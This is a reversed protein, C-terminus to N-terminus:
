DNPHVRGGLPERAGLWAPPIVARPALAAVGGVIALLTDRDADPTELGDLCAWLSAEFDGAHRSACWLAFPVTDDSRVRIGTGLARGAELPSVDALSLARELGARTDGPPTHELVTPLIPLANSAAYAAVAAAVAGARGDPYVHTPLASAEAERVVREVDERFFGGIPASRMAGGNGLSGQGSFVSSAIQRWPVGEHIRTLVHYAVAGYGRQPERAFRDAFAIALADVDISGRLELERVIVEAMATDDTWHWPAAPVRRTARLEEWDATLSSCRGLADGVSLGDLSRRALAGSM